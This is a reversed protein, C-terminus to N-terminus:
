TNKRTAPVPNSALCADIAEVADWRGREAAPGRLEALLQRAVLTAFRLSKLHELSFHGHPFSAAREKKGLLEFSLLARFCKECKGCNKDSGERWCVHLHRLAVDFQAIFATKDFRDVWAGYSVFQTQSSSMLPDLDPHTGWPTYDERGHSSSVLITGFQSGLTLGVAGMASGHLRLAWDLKRLRTQRLNTAIVAANKGLSGAIKRLSEVKGEFAARNKLPIDFGWVYILDGIKQGGNATRDFHLLSYFSDVGGTFFLGTKKAGSKAPAPSPEAEVRISKRQPFWSTWIRQIKETNALLMPDVPAHIRLTEGREFALPLLAMLWGNGSHGIAGAHSPPVDLWLKEKRLWGYNVEAAVRTYDPLLAFDPIPKVTIM